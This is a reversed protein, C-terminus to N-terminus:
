LIVSQYKREVMCQVKSFADTEERIEQPNKPNGKFKDGTHIYTHIYTQRYTFSLVEVTCKFMLVPCHFLPGLHGPGIFQRHRCDEDLRCQVACTYFWLVGEMQREQKDTM